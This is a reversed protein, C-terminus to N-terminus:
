FSGDFWTLSPPLKRRFRADHGKCGVQIPPAPNDHSNTAAALPVMMLLPVSVTAPIFTPAWTEPPVSITSDPPTAVLSVTKVPEWTM